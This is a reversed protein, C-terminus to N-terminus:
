ILLWFHTQSFQARDGSPDKSEQHKPVAWLFISKKGEECFYLGLCFYLIETRILSVADLSKRHGNKESIM